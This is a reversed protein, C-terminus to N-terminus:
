YDNQNKVLELIRDTEAEVDPTRRLRQPVPEQASLDSEGRM